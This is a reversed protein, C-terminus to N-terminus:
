IYIFQSDLCVAAGAHLKIKHVKVPAAPGPHWHHTSCNVSIDLKWDRYDQFAPGTM